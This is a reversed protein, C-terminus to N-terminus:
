YHLYGTNFIKFRTFYYSKVLFAFMISMYQFYQLTIYTFRRSFLIFVFYKHTASKGLICYFDTIEHILWNSKPSKLFTPKDIYLYNGAITSPLIFILKPPFSLFTEWSSLSDRLKRNQLMKMCSWDLM